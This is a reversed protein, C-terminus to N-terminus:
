SDWLGGRRLLAAVASAPCAFDGFGSQWAGHWDSGGSTYLDHREALATLLRQEEPHHNPRICELGQIGWRLMRPLDREVSDLPPHAWVPVGGAACVLEIAQEPTLLEVPLYAPGGDGLYRDFAEAHSRVLGREVLLRALHPRGPSRPGHAVAAVEEELLPLGLEILRAGMRLLRERRRDGASVGHQLIRPHQPDIFYGLVHVDTDEFTSSIELAPVLAVAGATAAAEAGADAVGAVTDHDTIAIIELRGRVAARVLEVPSLSGDSATSHAHLDVRRLAPEM